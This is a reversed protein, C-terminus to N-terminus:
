SSARSSASCALRAFVTNRDRILWSSRVGRQVRDEPERLQERHVLEGLLLLVLSRWIRLPPLCRSPRM